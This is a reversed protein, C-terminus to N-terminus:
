IDIVSKIKSAVKERNKSKTLVFISKHKCLKSILKCFQILNDNCNM